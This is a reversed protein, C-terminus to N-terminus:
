SFFRVRPCPKLYKYLELFRRRQPIITFWIKPSSLYGSSLDRLAHCLKGGSVLSSGPRVWNRSSRGRAQPKKKWRPRARTQLGSGSRRHGGERRLSMRARYPGAHHSPHLLGRTLRCSAFRRPRLQRPFRGAFRGPYPARRFFISLV